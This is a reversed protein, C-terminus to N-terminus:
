RKQKGWWATLADGEVFVRTMKGRQVTTAALEGSTIMKRVTKMCFPLLGLAVIESVRYQKTSDIKKM